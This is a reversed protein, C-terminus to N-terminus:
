SARSKRSRLIEDLLLLIAGCTISIDAINFAPFYWDRWYFLLFDVVHGLALRDYLNGIAGALILSLATCFLTQRQYKYLWYLILVVALIAIITFLWRQFGGYDALFSFAAGTNFLLTIDFFDFIQIRQAYSLGHLVINKTLQDFIVILLSLILWPIYVRLLSKVTIKETLGKDKTSQINTKM